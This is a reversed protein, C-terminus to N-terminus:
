PLMEIGLMVSRTWRSLHRQSAVTVSKLNSVELQWGDRHGALRLTVLSLALVKRDDWRVGRGGGGGKGGGAPGPGRRCARM